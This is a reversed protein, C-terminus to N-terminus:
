LGSQRTLNSALLWISFGYLLVTPIVTTVVGFARGGAGYPYGKIFTIRGVTFLFVSAPLLALTSGTALTAFVLHSGVAVFAQELTNQLFAVKVAIAQSPPAYASGRNDAASRFRGSSVRQVGILVWLFVFIDAQLAFAIRQTLGEPFRMVLPLLQYAAALGVSCFAAALASRAIVKRQESKLEVAGIM